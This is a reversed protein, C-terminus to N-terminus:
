KRKYVTFDPSTKLSIVKYNKRFNNELVSPLRDANENVLVYSAENQLLEDELTKKNSAKVTNITPLPFQSSSLRNADLYIKASSDWVYIKSKKETNERIYDAAQAREQNLSYSSIYHIVPQALGYVFLLCPLYFHGLLFLEFVRRSLRRHQKRRRSRSRQSEKYKDDLYLGTLVLGFPLLLLFQYTAFSQSLLIFILSFVFSLFVISKVLDDRDTERKIHNFFTLAGMLLGSAFLVFLQFFITLLIDESGLAFYTFYYTGAQSVYSSLIQMNLVFYGFTYFVLLGGFLLCLFQYFGHAYRHNKINYVCIVVLSVLWFFLTRPEILYAFAGTLGYIIFGEDRTLGAFYKTLFWLSLLVFPMAFQVPYLGGFGLAFNGLYFLLITNIAVEEKDTMHYVIKYLFIGSFYFAAFQVFILWFSSGLLYSLSILGYYVFGGTSFIDSYPLHNQAMMFGTYLNQSQVANGFDTFVPMAVSFFSVFASFIIIYLRHLSDVEAPGKSKDSNQRASQDALIEKSSYKDQRKDM